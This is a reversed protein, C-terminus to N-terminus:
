EQSMRAREHRGSYWILLGGCAAACFAALASAEPFLQVPRPIVNAVDGSALRVDPITTLTACFVFFAALCSFVAIFRVPREAVYYLIGRVVRLPLLIYSMVTKM